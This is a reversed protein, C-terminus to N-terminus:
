DVKIIKPKRRNEQLGIEKVNEAVESQMSNYMNESKLAMYMWRMEKLERQLIQIHRVNREALRANAIYIMALFGLFAIFPLNKLVAESTLFNFDTYKPGQKKAM